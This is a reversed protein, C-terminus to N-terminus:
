GHEQVRGLLNTAQERQAQWAPPSVPVLPQRGIRSQAPLVERDM